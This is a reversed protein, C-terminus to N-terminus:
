GEKLHKHEYIERVTKLYDEQEQCKDCLVDLISKYRGCRCVDFEPPMMYYEELYDRLM